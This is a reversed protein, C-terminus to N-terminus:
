SLVEVIRRAEAQAIDAARGQMGQSVLRFAHYGKFRTGDRGRELWPGYVVRSDHIMDTDASVRDAQVRSQYYGTPNRLVDHLMGQVRRLAADSVQERLEDVAAAVRAPAAPSFFPGSLPM